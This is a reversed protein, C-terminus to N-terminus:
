AIEEHIINTKLYVRKKNGSFDLGLTKNQKILERNKEPDKSLTQLRNRHVIQFSLPVAGPVVVGKYFVRKNTKAYGCGLKQFHNEDPLLETRITSYQFFNNGNRYYYGPRPNQQDNVGGFPVKIQESSQKNGM